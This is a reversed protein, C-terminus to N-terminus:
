INLILNFFHFVVFGLDFGLLYFPVFFVGSIPFYRFDWLYNQQNYLDTINTSFIEGVKIYVLFDNQSRFVTLVLIMSLIFYFGHIFVMLKFIKYKWLESIRNTIRDFQTKFNM